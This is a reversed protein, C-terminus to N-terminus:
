LWLPGVLPIKSLSTKIRLSNLLGSADQQNIFKLKKSDCIAFKPLKPGKKTKEVKPNKSETNIRCKM